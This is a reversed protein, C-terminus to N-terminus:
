GSDSSIEVMTKGFGGDEPRAFRYSAIESRKSLYDHVGKQLVGTGTGHIVSFSHLDQLLAEDVQRELAELAEHLRQGRIDLEFTAGGRGGRGESSSGRPQYFRVAPGNTPPTPGDGPSRTDARTLEERPVQMRLAGFQVEVRDGRVSKVTGTKGTRAHRVSQGAEIATLPATPGVPASNRSLQDIKERQRDRESEISELQEHASRIDTRDLETGRERLRRVEAEIRKRSDRITQELEAISSQRLERERTDLEGERETLLTERTQFRAEREVLDTARRQLEDEQVLLRNIIETVSNERDGAYARAAAIVAAAVGQDEATEIAHSSGPRGSVVRYTPQHTDQDFAMSVNRAGERTYGYHKLVTQHTSVLITSGREILFDVIAMSLAAGEDPDTGSGLEDLLVLSEPGADRIIAALRRM